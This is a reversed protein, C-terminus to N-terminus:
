IRQVQSTTMDLRQIKERAHRIVRTLVTGYPFLRATESECLVENLLAIYKQRNNSTLCNTDGQTFDEEYDLVDDVVQLAMGLQRIDVLKEFSDKTGILGTIFLASTIGRELGDNGLMRLRDRELLDLAMCRLSYSVRKDLIIRFARIGNEDFGRWDTAVDYACCYFASRGAQTAQSYDLKTVFGVYCLALNLSKRLYRPLQTVGIQLMPAYRISMALASWASLIHITTRSHM